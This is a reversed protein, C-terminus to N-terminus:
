LVRDSLSPTLSLASLNLRPDVRSKAVLFPPLTRAKRERRSEFAGKATWLRPKPPPTFNTKIHVRPWPGEMGAAVAVTPPPLVAALAVVAAAAVVVAAAVADAAVEEEAAADAV